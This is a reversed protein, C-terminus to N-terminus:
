PKAGNGAAATQRRNWEDEIMNRVFDNLKRRDAAAMKDLMQRLHGSIPVHLTTGKLEEKENTETANEMSM